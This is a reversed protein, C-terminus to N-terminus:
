IHILSLWQHADSYTQFSLDYPNKVDGTGTNKIIVTFPYDFANGQQQRAGQNIRFNTLVLDPSVIKAPVGMSLNAGQKQITSGQKVATPRRTIQVRPTEEVKGSASGRCRLRVTKTNNKENLEAVANNNDIVVKVSHAGPSLALNAANPFWVHSVSTGPKKLRGSPDAADLRIGGWPKGDMIMQIVAGKHPDYGTRLVGARGINRITIRIKCGSISQIDSVILDPLRGSRATVSPRDSLLIGTKRTEAPAPANFGPLMLSTMVLFLIYKKM